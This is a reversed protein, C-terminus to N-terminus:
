GGILHKRLLHAFIRQPDHLDSRFKQSLDKPYDLLCAIAL